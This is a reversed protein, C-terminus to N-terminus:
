TGCQHFTIVTVGGAAGNHVEQWGKPAPQADSSSGWTHVEQGELLPLVARFTLPQEATSNERIFAERAEQTGFVLLQADASTATTTM